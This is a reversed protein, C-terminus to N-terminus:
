APAVETVRLGYNGGLVVVEGRAIVRNDLLLDVPEPVERDLEVVAGSNLELVERLLLRRSGFRLTVALEVDMLLALNVTGNPMEAPAVAPTAVPPPTAVAPSEAKETRFGAVIAASLQLEFWAPAAEQGIRLWASSAAPWSPANASAELHLQVEGFKNRLTTAILGGVQRLLEVVAEKYEATVEVATSPDGMFMQALLVTAAAPMRLSMEGRLTGSAAAIVYLDNEAPAPLEAPTEPAVACTVPSGSIEALVNSLTEAWSQMFSTTSSEALPQGPTATDTM